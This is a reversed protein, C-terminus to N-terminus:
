DFYANINLSGRALATELTATLTGSTGANFAITSFDLDRKYLLARTSLATSPIYVPESFITKGDLEITLTNEGATALTANESLGMVLKRLNSSAPPTGITTSGSASASGSVLTAPQAYQTSHVTLGSASQTDSVLAALTTDSVSATGSVSVSQTTPFNGVSVTGYVAQKAPFNTVQVEDRQQIGTVAYSQPILPFNTMDIRVDGGAADADFAVTFVCDPIAPVAFVQKVGYPVNLQYNLDGKDWVINIAGATMQSTDVIISQPLPSINRDTTNKLNTEYQVNAICPYELYGWLMEASPPPLELNKTNTVMVNNNITAM